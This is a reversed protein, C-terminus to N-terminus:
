PIPTDSLPHKTSESHKDPDEYKWGRAYRGTEAWALVALFLLIVLLIL